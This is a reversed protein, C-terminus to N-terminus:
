FALVMSTDEDQFYVMPRMNAPLSKNALCFNSEEELQKMYAVKMDAEQKSQCILFNRFYRNEYAYDSSDFCPFRQSWEIIYPKASDTQTRVYDLIADVGEFVVSGVSLTCVSPLRLLSMQVTEPIIFSQIAYTGLKRIRNKMGSGDGVTLKGIINETEKRFEDSAVTEDLPGFMGIMYNNTVYKGDYFTFFELSAMGLQKGIDTQSMNLVIAMSFEDGASNTWVDEALVQPIEIQGEKESQDTLKKAEVKAHDIMSDIFQKISDEMM